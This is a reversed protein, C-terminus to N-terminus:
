STPSVLASERPFGNATIEVTYLGPDLYPITYIGDSTTRVEKAANTGNNTARVVANPIAAGSPDTVNGTLTARFDQGFLGLSCVFACAFQTKM